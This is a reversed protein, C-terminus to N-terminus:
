EIVHDFKEYIENGYVLMIRTEARCLPCLPTINANAIAIASTSTSRIHSELCDACFVHNCNIKVCETVCKNEELCISCDATEPEKKADEVRNIRVNNTSRHIVMITGPMAHEDTSENPPEFTAFEDERLNIREIDFKRTSMSRHADAAIQASMLAEENTYFDNLMRLQEMTLTQLDALSLDARLMRMQLYLIRNITSRKQHTRSIYGEFRYEVVHMIMEHKNMWLPIDYKMAIARVDELKKTKLWGHLNAEKEDQTQQIHVQHHMQHIQPNVIRELEVMLEPIKESTCQRINHGKCKCYGCNTYSVRIDTQSQEQDQDQQQVQQDHVQQEHVQQM